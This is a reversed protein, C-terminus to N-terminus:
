LRKQLFHFAHVIGESIAELQTLSTDGHMSYLKKKQVTAVMDQVGAWSVIATISLLSLLMRWSSLSIDRYIMFYGHIIDDFLM